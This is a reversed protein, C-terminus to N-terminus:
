SRQDSTAVEPNDDIVTKARALTEAPLGSADVCRWAVAGLDREAQRAVVAGDADSADGHRQDVRTRLASLPANLWLGTFPVGNKTAIAEIGDREDKNAYVADAVVPWGAALLAEALANAKEYVKRTVAPQYAAQDLPSEFPQNFLRKRLVDSRLVVAGPATGLGPALAAALTSKGTGSLGGVSVLRPPEALLLETALAVYRRARGIADRRGPEDPQTDISLASAKARVAARCSLFLRFAPMGSWDGTRWLYRNLSRNALEPLDRAILDMVLFALDYLVDCCAIRDNFEIADFLTPQGDILCLNRLHLDGHCHRVSGSQRRSELLDRRTDFANRTLRVLDQVDAEAFVAPVFSAIDNLNGDIVWAMGDSGGHDPRLAATDHLRAVADSAGDILGSTLQGTAALRDFLGEQDFRRMVVVYDVPDGDGDMALTGSGDRTIAKVDLYIDPATRRNIALESECAAKRKAVTGYDLFSYTVARKLKLVRDACLAVVAGHTDIREVPTSPTAGFAAPSTVFRIVDTQDGATM